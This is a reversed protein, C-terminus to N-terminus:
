CVMITSIASRTPSTDLGCGTAGCPPARFCIQNYKKAILYFHTFKCNHQLTGNQLINKYILIYLLFYM